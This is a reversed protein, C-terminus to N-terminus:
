FPIDDDMDEFGSKPAAKTDVWKPLSERLADGRAVACFVDWHERLLDFRLGEEAVNWTWSGGNRAYNGRWLLGNERILKWRKQEEHTLLDPYNLALKAFRDADDVDWLKSAVDAVSTGPDNGYGGDQLQVRALSDEIAWEIFSSVTRRQKLAALEALYRLKPDLRVTVTESRALKGGGAKRKGDLKETAM